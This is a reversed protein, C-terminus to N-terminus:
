AGNKIAEIASIVASGAIEEVSAGRSCDTFPKALGQLLPGYAHYGAVHNAVKYAINASNLDPFLYIEAAQNGAYALGKQSAIAPVFAADFQVPGLVQIGKESQKFIRDTYEAAARVKDVLEGGASEGTAYSLFAVKSPSSGFLSRWKQVSHKAIEAFQEKSPQPNVGCDAFLFWRHNTPQGTVLGMSKPSCFLFSSSLLDSGQELGVAYLGARIIHATTYRCGGVGSDLKGSSVMSALCYAPDLALQEIQPESLKKGRSLLYQEITKRTALAQEAVNLFEIREEQKLSSPLEEYDKSTGVLALRLPTQELLQLCANQVRHDSAECFGVRVGKLGLAGPLELPRITQEDKM